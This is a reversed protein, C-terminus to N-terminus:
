QLRMTRCVEDSLKWAQAASELKGGATCCVARRRAFFVGCSCPVGTDLIGWRVELKSDEDGSMFKDNENSVEFDWVHSDILLLALNLCSEWFCGNVAFACRM